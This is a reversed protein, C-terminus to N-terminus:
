LAHEEELHKYVEVYIIHMFAIEDHTLIVMDLPYCLLYKIRLGHLGRGHWKHQKYHM